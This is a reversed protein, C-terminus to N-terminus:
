STASDARAPRILAFVRSPIEYPHQGRHVEDASRPQHPNGSGSQRSRDRGRQGARLATRPPHGSSGFRGQRFNATIRGPLTPTIAERPEVAVIEAETSATQWQGLFGYPRDLDARIKEM